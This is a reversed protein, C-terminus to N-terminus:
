LSREGLSMRSAPDPEGDEEGTLVATHERPQQHTSTAVSRDGDVLGYSARTQAVRIATCWPGYPHPQPSLACRSLSDPM